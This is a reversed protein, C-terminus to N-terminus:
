IHDFSYRFFVSRNWFLWALCDLEGVLCVKRGLSPVPTLSCFFNENGEAALGLMMELGEAVTHVHEEAAHVKLERNIKAELIRRISYFHREKGLECYSKKKM